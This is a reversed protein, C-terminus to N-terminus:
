YLVRKMHLTERFNVSLGRTPPFLVLSTGPEGINHSCFIFFVIERQKSQAMM